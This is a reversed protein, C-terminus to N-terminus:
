LCDGSAAGKPQCDEVPDPVVDRVEGAKLDLAPLADLKAEVALGQDMGVLDGGGVLGEGRVRFLHGPRLDHRGGEFRRFTGALSDQPDLAPHDLAQM